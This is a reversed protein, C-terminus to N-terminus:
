PAKTSFRRTSRWAMSAVGARHRPSTASTDFYVDSTVITRGGAWGEARWAEQITDVLVQTCYPWFQTSVAESRWNLCAYPRAAEAVRAVKAALTTSPGFTVGYCPRRVCAGTAIDSTPVHRHMGWVYVVAQGTM